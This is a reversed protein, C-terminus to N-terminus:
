EPGDRGKNQDDAAKELFEAMKRKHNRYKWWLTLRDIAIIAPFIGFGIGLVIFMVMDNSMIQDKETFQSSTLSVM